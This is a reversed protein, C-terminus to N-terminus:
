SSGPEHRYEWLGWSYEVNITNYEKIKKILRRSALLRHVDPSISSHAVLIRKGSRGAAECINDLMQEMVPGIFPRYLYFVVNDNPIRFNLANECRVEVDGCAQLGKSRFIGVNATAIASSLPSLEVGIVQRFPLAMAMLVARGKGCGLDVFTFDSYRIDLKKLVHTMVREHTPVYLISYPSDIELEELSLAGSTSVGYKKDFRDYPPKGLFTGLIHLLSMKFTPWAGFIEANMRAVRLKEKVTM